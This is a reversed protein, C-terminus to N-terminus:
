KEYLKEYRSLKRETKEAQEVFEDVSLSSRKWYDNIMCYVFGKNGIKYLLGNIFYVGDTM